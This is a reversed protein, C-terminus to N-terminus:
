LGNNAQEKSMSDLLQDLSALTEDRQWPYNGFDCSFIHTPKKPFSFEIYLRTNLKKLTRYRAADAADSNNTM